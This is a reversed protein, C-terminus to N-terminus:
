FTGPDYKVGPWYLLPKGTIANGPDDDKHKEVVERIHRVLNIPEPILTPVNKKSVALAHIYMVIAKLGFIEQPTICPHGIGNAHGKQEVDTGLLRRRTETDVSMHTHGLLHYVYKDM